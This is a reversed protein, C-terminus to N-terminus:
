GRGVETTPSLISQYLNRYAKASQNWSFESKFANGVLQHFNKRNQFVDKAMQIVKKFGEKTNETFVFGNGKGTSATFSEITDALGGTKFVIPITGYCLSIMQSLGCPEFESPMLFFDSGAYIQHAMSEDFELCVALKKPYRLALKNLLSHYKEEGVGQIVVQIDLKFLDDMAALILDIGKQHSLRGVFGFLPVNASISLDLSEQLFEKNVQKGEEFNDKGYAQKILRDTLPNWIKHDIGNLIGAVQDRHAELVGELGCGFKKTQIEQAYQPSVTTIEDSYILGGKLLNVKEFFEFVDSTFLKKSLNLKAYEKAPFTGQYALNHITLVSKTRSYFDDEQYKEKLYIPILATQWDHCHIIDAQFNFEKLLELIRQCFFQFRELNDPYDGEEDGYLGSRWFYANHAILYVKINEGLTARFVGDSVKEIFFNGEKILSYYPLFIVVEMGIRELALPLAGCVDALGGTKAFPVVESSCFVVKM